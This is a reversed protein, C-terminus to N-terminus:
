KQNFFIVISGDDDVDVEVGNVMSLRLWHCAYEVALPIERIGKEYNYITVVSGFGLVDAAERQTLRCATRWQKFQKADM